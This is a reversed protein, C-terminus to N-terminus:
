TQGEMRRGEQRGAQRLEGGVPLIKAFKPRVAKMSVHGFIYIKV